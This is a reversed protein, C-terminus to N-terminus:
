IKREPHLRWVEKLLETGKIIEEVTLSAYGLVVTSKDKCHDKHIFFDSIPYVKIGVKAARLELEKETLGNNCKLIVHLGANDARITYDSGFEKLKEVIIDRKNRYHARMKNLHREFYGDAIFHYLINQDMRPVTCSLYGAKEKYVSILKPPLVMYGVRIAPAIAKSFTGMYIIKDDSDSGQMAPIPKGKYRFESDYDDEIIYRNSDKSAWNFLEQRRGVPMVIGTPYQHSPMVYLTDTTLNEFDSVTMGQEDMRVAIVDWKNINSFVRYAQKYSPTEMAIKRKEGLILGLLIMLYENGSGIIIKDADANVGRAQHLYTSIAERLSREGMNNGTAFMDKNDDIYTDKSLKRWISYPFVSFDIGRPSFDLIYSDNKTM